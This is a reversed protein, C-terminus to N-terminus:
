LSGRFRIAQRVKSPALADTPRARHHLGDAPAGYQAPAVNAVSLRPDQDGQGIKTVDDNQIVTAVENQWPCCINHDVIM